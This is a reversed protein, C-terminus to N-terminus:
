RRSFRKRFALAALGGMGLAWTAPEPSVAAFQQTITVSISGSNDSYFSDRIGIFLDTANNPITVLLGSVSIASSIMFDNPNPNASGYFQSTAVATTLGGNIGGTTPDITNTTCGAGGVAIVEAGATGCDNSSAFLGLLNPTGCTGGIYCFNGTSFTILILSGPALGLGNLNFDLPLYFSAAQTNDETTRSLFTGGSNMSLTETIVSASALSAVALVLLGLRLGVKM